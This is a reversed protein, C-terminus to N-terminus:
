LLVLIAGNKINTNRVLDNSEYREGTIKNYLCSNTKVVYADNSLDVIAKSLLSVINGIRRNIPIYLDYTEDIEPVIIKVLIKNTMIWGRIQWM